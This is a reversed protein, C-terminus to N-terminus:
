QTKILDFLESGEYVSRKEFVVQLGLRSVIGAIILEAQEQAPIVLNYKGLDNRIADAGRQAIRVLEDNTFNSRLPAVSTVVQENLIRTSEIEIVPDPLTIYVKDGDVRLKKLDSLDIGAKINAEVPIIATRQGLLDSMRSSREVVTTQAVCQVTYLMPTSRIAQLLEMEDVQKAKCSALCVGCLLVCILQQIM